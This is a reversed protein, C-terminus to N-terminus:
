LYLLHVSIHSEQEVSQSPPYQKSCCWRHANKPRHRRAHKNRYPACEFGGVWRRTTRDQGGHYSLGFVFRRHDSMLLTGLVSFLTKPVWKKEGNVIYFKGDPTRVATTTLGAVDSGASPETIALCVRKDGRLCEPIIKKKMADSGHHIIPPLGIQCAAMLWSALPRPPISGILVMGVGFAATRTFEDNFVFDHFGDWEEYEIGVPLGVGAQVLYEKPPLPFLAAAIFGQQAVQKFLEKPQQKKEEWDFVHPIINDDMYNRMFKRLRHHSERYYPSCLGTYWAPEAFPILEGFLENATKGDAPPTSQIQKPKPPCYKPTSKATTSKAPDATTSSISGIKLPSAWKAMVKENHYKWFQKSADQGLVRQLIKKGGPHEDLFNTVDYVM